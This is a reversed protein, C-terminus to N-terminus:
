PALYFKRSSASYPSVNGVSDISRLRLWYTQTTNTPASNLANIAISQQYSRTRSVISAFNTDLALIISDSKTDSGNRTWSLTGTTASLTAGSAPSGLTSLVPPTVDLTLTSAANYQSISFNNQARVRWSYSTSTNPFTFTYGTQNTLTDKVTTSSANLIIIQYLTASNISNWSFTITRNGTLLGKIPAINSVLQGTLNSTTDVTLNFVQYDSSGKSNTARIRWQYAGPQLTVNLKTGVLSTDAIITSISAFNPKVVQVNYKETGELAEWWFTIVNSTTVTNSAPALVTITKTKLDPAKQCAIFMLAVFATSFFLKNPKMKPKKNM